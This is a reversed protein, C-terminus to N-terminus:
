YCSSPFAGATEQLLLWTEARRETGPGVAGSSLVDGGHGAGLIRGAGLSGGAARGPTRPFASRSERGCWPAHPQGGPGRPGRPAAAPAVLDVGTACASRPGDWRADRSERACGGWGERRARSVARSLTLAADPCNSPQSRWRRRLLGQRPQLTRAGVVVSPALETPRAPRTSGASVCRLLPAPRGM